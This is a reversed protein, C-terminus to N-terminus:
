GQLLMHGVIGVLFGGVAGLPPAWHKELPVQPAIDQFILYLIGGSSFSMIGALWADAGTLFYLGLLASVPGLLMLLAFGGVLKKHTIHVSGRIERFANFSEPLNQFAILLCLLLATGRDYTIMAGLAMAEPVFDLSMAMLQSVPGVKKTFEKDILFFSIGGLTFYVIMWTLSLHEMGKPVLVLAIAALLIGAGFAIVAHRLEEELWSPQLQKICALLAGLPITISAMLALLM